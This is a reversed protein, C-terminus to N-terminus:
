HMTLWAHYSKQRQAQFHVQQIFTVSLVFVFDLNGGVGVRDGGWGGVRDGGGGGLFSSPPFTGITFM